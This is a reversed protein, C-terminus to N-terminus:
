SYGGLYTLIYYVKSQGSVYWTHESPFLNTYCRRPHDLLFQLTDRYGSWNEKDPLTKFLTWVILRLFVPYCTNGALILLGMTLLMYIAKNFVTMNADLLSMGSNNFASIANFAGVWWPDLGNEGATSPYYQKVYAGLALAGLLQWLVFYIPVIWALLTVAEYEKGGLRFREAETLHHFNSNRAIFGASSDVESSRERSRSQRFDDREAANQMSLRSRPRTDSQAGVGNLSFARHLFNSDSSQAASRFRTGERFTIHDRSEDRPKSLSLTSKAIADSAISTVENGTAAPSQHPLSPPNNDDELHTENNDQKEITDEIATSSTVVKEQRGRSRSYSRSPFWSPRSKLRQEREIESRFRSDFARQRVHVVFSSVFIASGMMILLFLLVQQFTNLTSLNVTNLGAETMASVTLFLSDAFSVSRFPTSSGWFIVASILSTFIFYLYHITIFNLEPLYSRVIRLPKSLPKLRGNLKFFRPM